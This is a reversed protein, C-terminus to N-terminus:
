QGTFRAARRERYHAVGERFDVSALSDVVEQHGERLAELLTQSRARLIQRKIVATSRPSVNAAIDQAYALTQPLLEDSKVIRNVLGMRLAEVAGISRASLLMDAAAGQGVIAPLTYAMAAEATLGRRGFIASFVADESAFRV